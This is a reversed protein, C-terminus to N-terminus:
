NNVTPASMQNEGRAWYPRLASVMQRLWLVQEVLATQERAWLALRASLGRCSFPHDLTLSKILSFLRLGTHKQAAHCTKRNKGGGGRRYGRAEVRPPKM